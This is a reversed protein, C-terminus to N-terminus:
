WDKDVNIRDPHNLRGKRLQQQLPERSLIEKATTAPTTHDPDAPNEQEGKSEEANSQTAEDQPDQQPHERAPSSQEKSSQQGDKEMAQRIEEGAQQQMAAAEAPKNQQLLETAHQQLDQARDLHEKSTTESQRDAQQGTKERLEEQQAALDAAKDGDANTNQTTEQELDHSKQALDQQSQLLDHLQQTYDRSEQSQDNGASSPQNKAQIAELAAIQRNAHELNGAAQRLDPALRLAQRYNEASKKYFELSRAPDDQAVAAQQQLANGANYRSKAVFDEPAHATLAAEAFAAASKEYEGLRYLAAGRNFDAVAPHSEQQTVEEYRSLAGTFDGNEFKTNGENILGAQSSAQVLTAMGGSVFFVFLALTLVITKAGRGTRGPCYTMRHKNAQRM